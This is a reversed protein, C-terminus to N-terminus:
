KELFLEIPYDYLSECGNETVLITGDVEFGVDEYWIGPILHLTM